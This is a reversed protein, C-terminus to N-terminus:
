MCSAFVLVTTLILLWKSGIDGAFREVYWSGLILAILSTGTCAIAFSSAVIPLVLFKSDITM